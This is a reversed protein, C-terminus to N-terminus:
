IHRLQIGADALQDALTFVKEFSAKFPSLDLLQSGIHCDVGVANLHSCKAIQQYIELADNIDM